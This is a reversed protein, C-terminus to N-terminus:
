HSTKKSVYAMPLNKVWMLLLSTKKGVYAMPLNKEGVDAVYQSTKEGLDAITLKKVWM